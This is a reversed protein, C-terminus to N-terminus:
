QLTRNEMFSEARLMLAENMLEYGEEITALQAFPIVLGTFHEHHLLRTSTDSLQRLEFVHKGHFVGKIGGGWSLLKQSKVEMVHPEINIKSNNPKHIELQLEEGEKIKGEVKVHYPNWLPYSQNDVLIEWVIHRPANIDIETYINKQPLMSCGSLYVGTIFIFIIKM